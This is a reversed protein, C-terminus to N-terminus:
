AGHANDPGPNFWAAFDREFDVGEGILASPDLDTTSETFNVSTTPADLDPRNPNRRGPPTPTPTPPHNSTGTTPTPTSSVIRSSPSPAAMSTTGSTSSPARPAPATTASPIGSMTHHHMQPTVMGQGPQTAPPNMPHQMPSMPPITSSPGLMPNSTAARPPRGFQMGQMQGQRVTVMAGNPPTPPHMSQGFQNVQFPPLSMPYYVHQGLGASGGPLTHVEQQQTPLVTSPGPRPKMTGRRFLQVLRTKEEPTMTALDKGALGLRRKLKALTPPPIQDLEAALMEPTTATSATASVSSAQHHALLPSQQVARSAPNSPPRGVLTQYQQQPTQQAGPPGNPPFSPGGNMGRQPPAQRQNHAIESANPARPTPAGAPSESDNTTLDFPPHSSDHCLLKVNSACHLGRYLTFTVSWSPKPSFTFADVFATIHSDSNLVAKEHRAGDLEAAETRAEDWGIEMVGEVQRSWILICVIWWPSGQSPASRRKRM